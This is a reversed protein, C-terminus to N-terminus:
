GGSRMENDMWRLGSKLRNGNTGTLGEGVRKGLLQVDLM